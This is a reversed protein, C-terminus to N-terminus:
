SPKGIGSLITEVLRASYRRIFSEELFDDDMLRDFARRNAFLYQCAGVIMFYADNPDIPRFEGAAVGEEIIARQAAIVPRIFSDKIQESVEARAERLLHNLLGSLYPYRHYTEIMGFIHRKLKTTPDLPRDSLKGLQALSDATDRQVLAVLLGERNGFYYKVLPATVGARKAIAHLSVDYTENEIMLESASSLLISRASAEESPKTAILANGRSM